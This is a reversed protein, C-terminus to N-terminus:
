RPAPMDPPPLAPADPPITGDLSPMVWEVRDNRWIPVSRGAQAHHRLAQRRGRDIAQCLGRSDNLRADIETPIQDIM